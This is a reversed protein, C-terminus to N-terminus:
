EPLFGVDIGFEGAMAAFPERVEEVRIAAVREASVPFFAEDPESFLEFDGQKMGCGECHNMWYWSQTTQSFDPRFISTMSQIRRRPEEALFSIYHPLASMEAKEWTGAKDGDDSVERMEHEAPLGFAFVATSAGCKWCARETKLVFYRRSRVNIEPEEPIWRRVASADAGDPIFWVKKKADWRAGLRRAEDKEHFPVNLDIRTM